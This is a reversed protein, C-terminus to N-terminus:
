QQSSAMEDVTDSVTAHCMAAGCLPVCPHLLVYTQFVTPTIHFMECPADCVACRLAGNREVLLQQHIREIADQLFASRTEPDLAGITVNADPLAVRHVFSVDHEDVYRGLIVVQGVVADATCEDVWGRFPQADKRQRRAARRSGSKNSRTAARDEGPRPLAAELADMAAASPRLPKKKELQKVKGSSDGFLAPRSASRPSPTTTTRPSPPAAVPKLRRAHVASRLQRRVVWLLLSLVAGVVWLWERM